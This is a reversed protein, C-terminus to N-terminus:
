LDADEIRQLLIQCSNIEALYQYVNHGDSILDIRLQTLCHITINPLQGLDSGCCIQPGLRRTEKRLNPHLGSVGEEQVWAVLMGCGGVETPRRAVIRSGDEGSWGAREM